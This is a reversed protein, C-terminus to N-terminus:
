LQCVLTMKIGMEKKGMVYQIILKSLTSNCKLKIKIKVDKEQHNQISKLMLHPRILQNLISKQLYMGETNKINSKYQKGIMM